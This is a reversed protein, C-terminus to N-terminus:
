IDEAPGALYSPSKLKAVKAEIEAQMAPNQLKGFREQYDEWANLKIFRVLEKYTPEVEQYIAKYFEPNQGVHERTVTIGEQKARELVTAWWILAGFNLMPSAFYCNGTKQPTKEFAIAALPDKRDADSVYYLKKKPIRPTELVKKLFELKSLNKDELLQAIRDSNFLTFTTLTDAVEASSKDKLSYDITGSRIPLYGFFHLLEALAIKKQQDPDTLDILDTELGLSNLFRDLNHEIKSQENMVTLVTEEFRIDEHSIYPDQPDQKELLAKAKTKDIPLLQIARVKKEGLRPANTLYLIKNTKTTWSHKLTSRQSEILIDKYLLYAYAHREASLYIFQIAESDIKNNLLNELLDERRNLNLSSAYAEKIRQLIAPDFSSPFAKLFSEFGKEIMPASISSYGGVLGANKLSFLTGLVFEKYERHQSQAICRQAELNSTFLLSPLIKKDSPDLSSTDYSRKIYIHELSTKFVPNMGKEILIQIFSLLTNIQDSNIGSNLYTLLTGLILSDDMCKLFREKGLLEEAKDFVLKYYGTHGIKLDNVDLDFLTLNESLWNHLQFHEIYQFITTLQKELTNNNLITANNDASNLDTFLIKLIEYAISDPVVEKKQIYPLVKSLDNLDLCHSCVTELLQILNKDQPEPILRKAELSDIYEFALDFDRSKYILSSISLKLFSIDPNYIKEQNIKELVSIVFFIDQKALLKLLLNCIYDKTFESMFFDELPKNDWKDIINKLGQYDEFQLLTLIIKEIIKITEVTFIDQNHLFNELDHITIHPLIEKLVTYIERDQQSDNNLLQFALEAAHNPNKFFFKFTDDNMCGLVADIKGEHALHIIKKVESIQLVLTKPKGALAPSSALANKTSSVSSPQEKVAAEAKAKLHAEKSASKNSATQSSSKKEFSPPTYIPRM